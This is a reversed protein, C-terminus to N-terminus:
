TRRGIFCRAATITTMATTTAQALGAGLGMGVALALREGLPLGGGMVGDGVAVGSVLVTRHTGSADAVADVITSGQGGAIAATWLTM